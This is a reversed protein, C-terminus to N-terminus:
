LQSKEEKFVLFHYLLLFDPWHTYNLFSEYLGRFPFVPHPSIPPFHSFWPVMYLNIIKLIVHEKWSQCHCRKSNVDRLDYMKTSSTLWLGSFLTILEFFSFLSCHYLHLSVAYYTIKQKFTLIESNFLFNLHRLAGRILCPHGSKFVPADSRIESLLLILLPDLIESSYIHGM